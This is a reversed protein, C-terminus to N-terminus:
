DRGPEPEGGARALGHRKPGTRRPAPKLQREYWAAVQEATAPPAAGHGLQGTLVRHRLQLAMRYGPQDALARHLALDALRVAGSQLATFALLCAPAAVYGPRSWVTVETWLRRHARHYQPDMRAYADDRVWPDAMVVSLWALEGMGPLVGGARYIRIAETTAAIGAAAVARQAAPSGPRGARRALNNLKRAARVTAGAMVEGAAGSVPALSRALASHSRLVPRPLGTEEGAVAM